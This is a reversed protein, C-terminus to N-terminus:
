TSGRERINFTVEQSINLCGVITEILKRFGSKLGDIINIVLNVSKFKLSIEGSDVLEKSFIIDRSTSSLQNNILSKIKYRKITVNDASDESRHLIVDVIARLTSGKLMEKLEDSIKINLVIYEGNADAEDYSTKFKIKYGMITKENAENTPM